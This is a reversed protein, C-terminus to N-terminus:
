KIRPSFDSPLFKAGQDGFFYPSWPVAQGLRLLIQKKHFLNYGIM